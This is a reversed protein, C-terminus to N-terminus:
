TGCVLAYANNHHKFSICLVLLYKSLSLYASPRSCNSYVDDIGSRILFWSNFSEHWFCYHIELSNSFLRSGAQWAKPYALPVGTPSLAPETASVKAHRSANLATIRSKPVRSAISHFRGPSTDSETCPSSEGM